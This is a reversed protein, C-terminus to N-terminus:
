KKRTVDRYIAVLSEGPEVDLEKRLLKQTREFQRKASKIDGVLGYSKILLAVLDEAYGDISVAESLVEIAENYKKDSILKETQCYPIGAGDWGM